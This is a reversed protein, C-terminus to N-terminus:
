ASAANRIARSSFASGAHDSISRKALVIMTPDRTPPPARCGFSVEPSLADSTSDTAPSWSSASPRLKMRTSTSASADAHQRLDALQESASFFSVSPTAFARISLANGSVSACSASSVAASSLAECLLDLGGDVDVGSNIPPARDGDAVGHDVRRDRRLELAIAV